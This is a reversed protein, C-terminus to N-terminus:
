VQYIERLSRARLQNLIRTVQAHRQGFKSKGGISAKVSAFWNIYTRASDASRKGYHKELFYFLSDFYCTLQFDEDYREAATKFSGGGIHRVRLAPHVVARYGAHKLRLAYDAEEFYAFFRSDFGGETALAEERICYFAGTPYDVEIPTDGSFRISTSWGKRPFIKRLGSFDWMVMAPSPFAGYSERPANSRGRIDAGIIGVQPGASFVNLITPMFQTQIECDPNLLLLHKGERMAILQNVAAAFGLNRPNITLRNVLFNDQLLGTTTDDSNNDVVLVELKEHPFYRVISNLCPIITHGSNFTVIGISILPKAV